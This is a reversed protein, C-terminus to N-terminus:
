LGQRRWLTIPTALRTKLAFILQKTENFNIADLDASYKKQDSRLENINHTPCAIILYQYDEFDSNEMEYINHLIVLNNRFEQQIMEAVYEPKGTKSGYFLGVNAM